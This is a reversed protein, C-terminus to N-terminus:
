GHLAGEFAKSFDASFPQVDVIDHKAGPVADDLRKLFKELEASPKGVVLFCIAFEHEDNMAKTIDAITSMVKDEDSPEGDTALLLVTQKEKHKKHLEWAAQIAAHTNTQGETADIKAVTQKATAPTVGEFVSITSGFAIVDVGSDYKSAEEILAVTGEKLYDIRATDGPCDKKKMSASRDVAVVINDGKNLELNKTDDSM